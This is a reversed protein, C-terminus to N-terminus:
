FVSSGDPNYCALVVSASSIGYLALVVGLSMGGKVLLTVISGVSTGAFGAIAVLCGWQKWSLWLPAYGGNSITVGAGDVWVVEEHELVKNLTDDDLSLGGELSKATLTIPASEVSVGTPTAPEAGVAEQGSGSAPALGISAAALGAVLATAISMAIGREDADDPVIRTM